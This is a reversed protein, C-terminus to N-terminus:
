ALWPKCLIQFHHSLPATQCPLGSFVLLLGSTVLVASVRCSGQNCSPTSHLESLKDRLYFVRWVDTCM